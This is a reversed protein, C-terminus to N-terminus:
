KASSPRTSSRTRPIRICTSSCAATSAPTRTFPGTQKEALKFDRGFADHMRQTARFTGGDPGVVKKGNLTIERDDYAIVILRRAADGKLWRVLKGGHKAHTSPTTPTSFRSATSTPPFRTPRKSSASIFSGGGSHGTLTVRADDGGFQQRWEDLLTASRPTPTPVTGRLTPWSLGASRRLRARATRGADLTRLLRTQAAIHQIDYHWDLGQAMQCGLTQELTNGNPLAFVILRPPVRETLQRRARRRSIPTFGCRRNSRQSGVKRLRLRQALLRNCFSACSGSTRSNTGNTRSNTRM